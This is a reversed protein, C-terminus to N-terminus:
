LYWTSLACVDNMIWNCMKWHWVPKITGQCKNALQGFCRVRHWTLFGHFVFLYSVKNWLVHSLQMTGYFVMTKFWSLINMNCIVSSSTQWRAIQSCRDVMYWGLVSLVDLIALFITLWYMTWKTWYWCSLQSASRCYGLKHVFVTIVHGNPYWWELCVIPIARNISPNQWALLKDRYSFSFELQEFNNPSLKGFRQSMRLIWHFTLEFLSTVLDWLPLYTFLDPQAALVSRHFYWSSLLTM